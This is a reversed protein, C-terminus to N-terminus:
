TVKKPSYPLNTPEVIGFEDGKFNIKRTGISLRQLKKQRLRIKSESIVKLWLIPEGDEDEDEEEGEWEDNVSQQVQESTQSEQLATLPVDQVEQSSGADLNM